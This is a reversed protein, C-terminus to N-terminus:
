RANEKTITVTVRVKIMDVEEKNRFMLMRGLDLAEAAMQGDWKLVDDASLEKASPLVYGVYTIRKM